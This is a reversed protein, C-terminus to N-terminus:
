DVSLRAVSLAKGGRRCVCGAREYSYARRVERMHGTEEITAVSIVAMYDGVRNCSSLVREIKQSSGNCARDM